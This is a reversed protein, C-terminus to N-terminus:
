ARVERRQIPPRLSASAVLMAQAEPRRGAGRNARRGDVPSEFDIMQRGLGLADQAPM